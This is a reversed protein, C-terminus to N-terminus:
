AHASRVASAGIAAFLLALFTGPAVTTGLAVLVPVQSFSLLGFGIVTSANAITLAALTLAEDGAEESNAQRDFFLAYNSGVAVILLMGVLHLISLQVGALALGAAVTLVALVLPALVRAVRLPSRLAILLLVTLALFGALSFHIAESLYNDYLADSEQKLDLVRAEDVHNDKLAAVVRNLDIERGAAASRLPLLANWQDRQHLILADFGASLSTGALDRPTVLAAHRTAEIDELFPQLRDARLPLGAVAQNLNARLEAASPLSSRRSEQTAMSPLYAAPSEFGGIVKEDVLSQLARAAHEAGRLISEMDPGSVIVLDRVDAAGLDARLKADYNQEDASIPSLASLERNWLSERDHYLVALAIMVLVAGCLLIARGSLPQARRLLGGVRLGLPRVDRITFGAPLLAPLLYRTVLAAAILGSISYLGLQKLGPFGSPLLSAFGCVSTLMGLRITPWWLQQWGSAAAGSHAQRSQVFFYISYDVSEGIL